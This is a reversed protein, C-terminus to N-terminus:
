SRIAELSISYIGDENLADSVLYKQSDFMMQRGIKPLKGFEEQSVYFLAQKTFLGEGINTGRKEREIQEYNDIIVNMTKGDVLHEEGFEQPHIFLQNIDSQIVDKFSM